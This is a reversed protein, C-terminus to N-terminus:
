ETEILQNANRSSIRRVLRSARRRTTENNNTMKAISIRNTFKKGIEKAITTLSRLDLVLEAVDIPKTAFETSFCYKLLIRCIGNIIDIHFHGLGHEMMPVYSLLFGWIDVNKTFVEYFYKTDNFNGNEDVYMLLVAQVYEILVNYTLVNYDLRNYTNKIAYIKYIDHLIGTIIYEYHGESTKEISKNIMNVAVIKLLDAQGATKNHFMPSSKIENLAEPLWNKVYSNFFIDSFPMNFAISRNQISEPVHIGDNEGALGWDILRANGDEAMLINAYKIDYHNFHKASLPVIGNTLLRIMAENMIVFNQYMAKDSLKILEMVFKEINLGGNPMVILSLENIRSNVTESTIGRKTFLSCEQDFANLDEKSLKDPKCAYTGSIIFYNENQPITEIIKKVKAMEDLESQTDEIYMLKSINKPNYPHPANKACKIAPNFVCGYSGADIARGGSSRSTTKKQQPKKKRYKKHTYGKM